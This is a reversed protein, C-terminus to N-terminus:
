VVSKRDTTTYKKFEELEKTRKEEQSIKEQISNEKQIYTKQKEKLEISKVSVVILLMLVVITVGIMGMRNQRKKRLVVRSKMTIGGNKYLTSNCEGIGKQFTYM